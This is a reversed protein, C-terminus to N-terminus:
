HTNAVGDKAVMAMRNPKKLPAGAKPRSSRCQNERNRVSQAHSVRNGFVPAMNPQGKLGDHVSGKQLSSRCSSSLRASSEIEHKPNNLDPSYSALTVTPRRSHTWQLRNVNPELLPDNHNTGDHSPDETNLDYNLVLNKIRQQEAREAQQQTRM